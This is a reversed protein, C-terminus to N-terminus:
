RRVERWSTSTVYVGCAIGHRALRAAWREADCRRAYRKMRVDRGDARLWRVVFLDGDPPRLRDRANV